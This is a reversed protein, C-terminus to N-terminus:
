AMYNNRDFFYKVSSWRTYIEKKSINAKILNLYYQEIQKEKIEDCKEIGYADYLDNFFNCLVLFCKKLDELSLKLLIRSFIYEKIESRMQKSKLKKFDYKRKSTDINLKPYYKDLIWVLDDYQCSSSYYFLDNPESEQVTKTTFEQLPVSQELSQFKYLPENKM